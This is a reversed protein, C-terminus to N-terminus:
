GGWGGSSRNWSGSRSILAGLILGTGVAIVVTTMGFGPPHGGPAASASFPTARPQPVYSKGTNTMSPAHKAPAAAAAWPYDTWFWPHTDATSGYYWPPGDLPPAGGPMSPPPAPAHGGDHGAGADALVNPSSLTPAMPQPGFATAAIRRVTISAHAYAVFDDNLDDLELVDSDVPTVYLVHKIGLANLDAVSPLKALFRNDFQNTADTYAALRNRDLVFM